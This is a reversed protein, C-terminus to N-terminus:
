PRPPLRALMGAVPCCPDLALARFFLGAGPAQGWVWRRATLGRLLALSYLTSGPPWKTSNCAQLMVHGTGLAYQSLLEIGLSAVWPRWSRLGHRPPPSMPPLATSPPTPASPAALLPTLRQLGRCAVRGNSRSAQHHQARAQSCLRGGCGCALRPWGGHGRRGCRKLMCVYILPRLLHALEGLWIVRDGVDMGSPDLRWGAARQLLREELTSPAGGAGGGGAARGLGRQWPWSHAAGAKGSCSARPPPAWAGLQAAPGIGAASRPDSTGPGAGEGEQRQQQQGGTTTTAASSGWWGWRFPRHARAPQPAVAAAANAAVTAPDGGALGQGCSSGAGSDAAPALGLDCNSGAGADVSAAAEGPPGEASGPFCVSMSGGSAQQQLEAAAATSTSLGGSSGRRRLAAGRSGCACPPRDPAIAAARVAAAAAQRANYERAERDADSGQKKGPGEECGSDGAGADGGGEARGGAEAGGGAQEPACYRRRLRVLSSLLAKLRQESDYLERDERSVSELALHSRCGAWMRLRLALRCAPTPLPGADPRDVPAPRRLCGRHAAATSSACHHSVHEM